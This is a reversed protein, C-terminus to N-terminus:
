NHDLIEMSTIGHTKGAVYLGQPLDMYVAGGKRFGKCTLIIGEALKSHENHEVRFRIGDLHRLIVTRDPQWCLKLRAGPPLTEADLADPDDIFGSDEDAGIATCFAEWGPHGAIRALVDLTRKSVTSYGRTSYGWVRELTSESIHEKLKREATSGLAIFDAHTRPRIGTAAEVAERLAAIQPIDTQINM